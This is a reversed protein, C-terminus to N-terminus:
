QGNLWVTNCAGQTASGFVRNTVFADLDGDGGLDGLAVGFSSADGLRQGSDRFVGTGSTQTRATVPFAYADLALYLPEGISDGIIVDPFSRDDEPYFGAEHYMELFEPVAFVTKHMYHRQQSEAWIAAEQISVQDDGDTSAEPAGFAETFYYTFVGGIIPLGEEELGCWSLEDQDSAAISLHPEPDDKADTTFRAAFCSTVILVRRESPIEAWAKAFFSHWAVVEDSYKAHGAVVLLVIDDEDVQRALWDLGHVLSDRDFERLEKIHDRGWGASELLGRMRVTDIYDVLLDSMDVDSYDDKEALVAWGQVIGDGKPVETSLVQRDVAPAHGSPDGLQPSEPVTSAVPERQTPSPVPTPDKPVPTDTSPFATEVPPEPTRIPEARGCSGLLALFMLITVAAKRRRSM